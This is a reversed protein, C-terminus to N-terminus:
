RDGRGEHSLTLSLPNIPRSFNREFGGIGDELFPEGSSEIDCGFREFAFVVQHALGKGDGVGVQVGHQSPRRAHVHIERLDSSCM